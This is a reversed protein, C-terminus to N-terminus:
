KGVLLRHGLEEPLGVERMKDIVTQVSYPLSVFNIEGLETDYIAFQADACGNRPQGISGPCVLAHNYAALSIKKNGLSIDRNNKDRAFVGTIHSHGHFCLPMAKDAMYQLNDEYTMMYVYGYFFEPDMPSGHVAFWNDTEIFVALDNLWQKHEISLNDITWQLTLRAYASFLTDINAIAVAHDHNGKIIQFNTAQLREICEKPQPGYGVIDGLVIGEDINHAALYDLVCSLAAYNAHIDALLALYRPKNNKIRNPQPM